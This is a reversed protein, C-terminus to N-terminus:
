SLDGRIRRALQIDRPLVTVRKAHIACLNSDEFVKVLYMESAEQMAHIASSQIWYDYNMEKFIDHVVRKFPLKKILNETSIQYKRIERIAATGPRYRKKQKTSKEIRKVCVGPTQVMKRCQQFPAVKEKDESAVAVLQEPTGKTRVM